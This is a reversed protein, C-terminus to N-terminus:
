KLHIDKCLEKNAIPNDVVRIMLSQASSAFSLYEYTMGSSGIFEQWAKHEHHQWGPYNFYEDFIIISGPILRAGLHSFIDVASEYIDSDIHLLAIPGSNNKVFSPLSDSFWGVVLEVMDPLNDPLKGETSFRGERQVHTWDKPLGEFSDFGYITRKPFLSSLQRISVGNCVGFELLLGNDPVVNASSQRVAEGTVLDQARPLNDLIFRASDYTALVRMAKEINYTPLGEPQGFVSELAANHILQFLDDTKIQTM